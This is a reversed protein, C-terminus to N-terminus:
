AKSAENLRDGRDTCQLVMYEHREEFDEVGGPVVRLRTGDALLIWTESTVDEDYRITVEHSVAVDTGVGDFIVKGGTTRIKAWTKPGCSFEEDFNTSDYGPDDIARAQLLVEDRFDGVCIKRRPRPLVRRKSM